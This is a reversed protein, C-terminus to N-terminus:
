ESKLLQRIEKGIDERLTPTYGVHIDHVRGRQDIVILTPFGQVGFKEPLGEGKLTPYKLAMKEIVFKADAEKRDTNMGFIAVPKGAFDEALQNMQPMAKICWGCGRYWFDLVVVKGRLDALKVKKGDIDTTEFDAAPKGLFKARREAGDLYYKEMRGHQAIKEALDAKLEENTLGASAVRLGEV